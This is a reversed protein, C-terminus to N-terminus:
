LGLWDRLHDFITPDTPRHGWSGKWIVHGREDFLIVITGRRGLWHKCSGTMRFGGGPGEELLVGDDEHIFPEKGLEEKLAILQAQNEEWDKGPGGLVREVKKETMGLRIQQWSDATIRDRPWLFLTAGFGALLVALVLTMWKLKRKM